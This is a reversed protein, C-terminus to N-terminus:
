IWVCFYMKILVSIVTYFTHKLLYTLIYTFPTLFADAVCFPTQENLNFFYNILSIITYDADDNYNKFNLFYFSYKLIQDDNFPLTTPVVYFIKGIGKASLTRLHFEDAKRKSQITSPPKRTTQLDM